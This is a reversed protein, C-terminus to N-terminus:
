MSSMLSTVFTSLWVNLSIMHKPLPMKSTLNVILLYYLVNRKVKALSNRGSTHIHYEICTLTIVM